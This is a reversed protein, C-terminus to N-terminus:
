SNTIYGVDEGLGKLSTIYFCRNKELREEHLKHVSGEM